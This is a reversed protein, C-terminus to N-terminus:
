TGASSCSARRTSICFSRGKSTAAYLVRAEVAGHSDSCRNHCRIGLTSGGGGGGGAQRSDFFLNQYFCPAILVAAPRACRRRGCRYMIDLTDGKPSSYRFGNTHAELQGTVRRGKGGLVPRVWVDPLTYM